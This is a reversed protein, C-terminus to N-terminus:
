ATVFLIAGYVVAVIAILMGQRDPMIPRGYSHGRALYRRFDRYAGYFLLAFLPLFAVDPM